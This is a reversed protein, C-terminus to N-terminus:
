NDEKGRDWNGATEVAFASMSSWPISHFKIKKGSWGKVDVIMFRKSTLITTDRGVKFAMHVKEKGNLLLVPYDHTLKEQAMVPDIQIANNGMWDMFQGMTSRNNSVDTPIANSPINAQFEKDHLLLVKENLFQQITFINVQGSCFDIQANIGGKATIHLEVDTDIFSGASQISYHTIIEYPISLYNRRKGGIGKGDKILVRRTTLYQKDRGMEGVSKFAMVITEQSHLLEPYKSRCSAEETAADISKSNNSLIKFM